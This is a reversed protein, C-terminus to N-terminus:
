GSVPASESSDGAANEPPDNRVCGSPVNAAFSKVTITVSVILGSVPLVATQTAVLSVAIKLAGIRVTASYRLRLQGAEFTEHM